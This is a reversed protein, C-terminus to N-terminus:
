AEKDRLLVLLGYAGLLTYAPLIFYLSIAPYGSATSFCFPVGCFDMITHLIVPVWLNKTKIYISGFYLGLGTTWIVKGLIMMWPMGLSGFIHGFGFLLSSLIVAWLTSRRSHRFLKEIVNLLLGRVYLEEMFGVGIYYIFGEVLVKEFTPVRDFPQLGIYFAFTSVALALMGALGYKKLGAWVGRFRLGLEWRPCFAKLLLFAVVGTIVFNLMLTFYYPEIDSIRIHLFLLASPLGSVDMFAILVTIFGAALLVGPKEKSGSKEM